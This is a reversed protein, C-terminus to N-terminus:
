IHILSLLLIAKNESNEESKAELTHIPYNLFNWTYNGKPNLVSSKTM